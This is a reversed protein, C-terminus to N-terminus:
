FSVYILRSRYDRSRKLLFQLQRLPMMEIAHNPEFMGASQTAIPKGSRVNRTHQTSNRPILGVRYRKTRRNFSTREANRRASGAFALTV